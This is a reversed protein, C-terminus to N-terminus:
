KKQWVRVYDIEMRQPWISDDVGQQGGWNGGIAINLILFMRNDFPWADYGSHENSFSFYSTSDVSINISNSDWEVKYLHFQDSCGPVSITATKERGPNKEQKSLSIVMKWEKMKWEKKPIFNLNRIAGAM